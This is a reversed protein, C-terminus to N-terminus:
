LLLTQSNMALVYSVNAVVLHKKSTNNNSAADPWVTESLLFYTM